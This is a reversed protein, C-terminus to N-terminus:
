FMDLALRADDSMRDKTWPPDWTLQVTVEGVGTVAAVADAVQQPLIGAVPCNPTTLSMTIAINAPQDAVGIEVDYILGLEYINVPIEPDYVSSIADIIDPMAPKTTLSPDPTGARATAGEEAPPGPMFDSLPAYPPTQSPLHPTATKTM